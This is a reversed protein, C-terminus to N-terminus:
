LKITLWGMVRTGILDGLPHERHTDNLANFVSLAVEAERLYGATSQQQWFRYGLRLNLLNYAPVQEQPFVTGAPSFPALNIFADALPYSATGVHHYLIEGRFLNWNVRLGINVKHQPFGRRSFGNSSQGVKQYAYNAFGSLWSTLLVEVGIEGGYADAVGSKVSRFTFPIPSIDPLDQLEQFTFLNALHNYFGTIRTRFRHEWWWGQYGLECSTIQEPKLDASGLVVTTLLPSPFGPLMVFNLMSLGVEDTTPPRYAVSSSLRFSHNSNLHYVLAGRPSLTPTIFTDLDYRLGTSLELSPFVQWNGQAYLGLRDETTRSILFNSSHIIRRYNTGINFHLTELPTFQYRTEFDYTNLSFGQGIRGFRDTMSLLPKLSRHIYPTTEAFLGNWWGRILLGSRM